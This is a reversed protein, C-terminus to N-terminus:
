GEENRYYLDLAMQILPAFKIKPWRANDLAPAIEAPGNCLMTLLALRMGGRDPLTM